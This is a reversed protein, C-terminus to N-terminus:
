NETPGETIFAQNSSRAEPLGLPMEQRSGLKLRTPEPTGQGPPTSEASYLPNM